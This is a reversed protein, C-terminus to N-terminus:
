TRFWIMSTGRIENKSLTVSFPEKVKDEDYGENMIQIKKLQNAKCEELRLLRESWAKVIEKLQELISLAHSKVAPQIDTQLLDARGTSNCVM